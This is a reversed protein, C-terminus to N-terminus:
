LVLTKSFPREGTSEEDMRCKLTAAYTARQQVVSYTQATAKVEVYELLVGDSAAEIVAVAECHDAPMDM